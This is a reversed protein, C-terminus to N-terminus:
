IPYASLSATHRAKSVPYASLSVPYASLSVPYASLSAPFAGLTDAPSADTSSSSKPLLNAGGPNGTCASLAVLAGGLVTLALFQRVKKSWNQTM